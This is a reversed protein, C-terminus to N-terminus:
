ATGVWGFFSAILRMDEREPKTGTIAFFNSLKTFEPFCIVIVM